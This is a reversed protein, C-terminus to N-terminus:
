LLHVTMRVYFENTEAKYLFRPVSVHPRGQGTYTETNHVAGAINYLQPQGGRLLGIGVWIDTRQEM